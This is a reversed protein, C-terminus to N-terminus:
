KVFESSIQFTSVSQLTTMGYLLTHNRVAAITSGSACQTVRAGPVVLVGLVTAAIASRLLGAGFSRSAVRSCCRVSRNVEGM